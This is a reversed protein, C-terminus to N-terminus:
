SVQQLAAEQKPSLDGVRGSMAATNIGQLTDKLRSTNIHSNFGWTSLLLSKQVNPGCNVSRPFCGGPNGRQHIQPGALKEHMCMLLPLQLYCLLNYQQM